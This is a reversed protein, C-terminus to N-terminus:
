TPRSVVVRRGDDVLQAAVDVGPTRQGVRRLPLDRGLGSAQQLVPALVLKLVLPREEALDLRDLGGDPQGFDRGLQPSGALLEPVVERTGVRHGIRLQEANRELQGRAGALGGHHGHQDGPLGDVSHAAGPLLCNVRPKRMTAGPRVM